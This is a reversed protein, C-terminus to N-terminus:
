YYIILANLVTKDSKREASLYNNNLSYETATIAPYLKNKIKINLMYAFIRLVYSDSKIKQYINSYVSHQCFVEIIIYDYSNLFFLSYKSSNFM